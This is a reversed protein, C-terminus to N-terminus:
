SKVAKLIDDDFFPFLKGSSSTKTARGRSISTYYYSAVYIVGFLFAFVASSIKQGILHKKELSRHLSLSLAVFNFTLIVFLTGYLFFTSSFDELHQTFTKKDELKSM